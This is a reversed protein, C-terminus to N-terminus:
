GNGGMRGHGCLSKLNQRRPYIAWIRHIVNSRAVTVGGALATGNYCILYRDKNLRSVGMPRYSESSKALKELRPDGEWPVTVSKPSCLCRCLGNRVLSHSVRLSGHSRVRQLVLDRDRSESVALRVCGFALHLGELLSFILYRLPCPLFWTSGM